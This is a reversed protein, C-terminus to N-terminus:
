RLAETLPRVPFVKLATRPSCNIVEVGLEALPAVLTKFKEIFIGFPSEQHQPHDGHWHSEHGPGRQMDYGLLVIRTAGLHVALNIAQYGSNRGTKLGDPSLELGESGANRLISVGWKAAEPSVSYREGAFDKAGKHWGWWHADAAYLAHAWPIRQYSTNIAIAADIRGRSYDIDAQKLSPGSAVCLITGGPFLRPVSAFVPKLKAAVAVM